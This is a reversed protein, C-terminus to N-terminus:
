SQERKKEKERKINEGFKIHLTIQRKNQVERKGFDKKGKGFDSAFEAIRAIKTM